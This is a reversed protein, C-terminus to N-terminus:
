LNPFRSKGFATKILDPTLGRVNLSQTVCESFIKAESPHLNEMFESYIKQKVDDGFRTGEPSNAFLYRLRRYNSRLTYPNLGWPLTNKRHKRKNDPSYVRYMDPNYNMNFLTMVVPDAKAKQLLAIKDTDNNFVSLLYFFDGIQLSTTEDVTKQKNVWAERPVEHSTFPIVSEDNDAVTERVPEPTDLSEKTKKKAVSKKKSSKKKTKTAATSSSSSTNVTYEEPQIEQGLKALEDLHENKNHESEM